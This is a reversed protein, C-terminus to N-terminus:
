TGFGPVNSSVGPLTSLSRLFSEQLRHGSRVTIAYNWRLLDDIQRQRHGKVIATLTASLWAHPDVSNM